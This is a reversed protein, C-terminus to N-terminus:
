VADEANSDGILGCLDGYVSCDFPADLYDEYYSLPQDFGYDDDVDEIATSTLSCIYSADASPTLALLAVFM